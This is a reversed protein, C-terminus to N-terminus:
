EAAPGPCTRPCRFTGTWGRSTLAEAITSAVEHPETLLVFGPFRLTGLMKITHRNDRQMDQWWGSTYFHGLRGDFEAIVTGEPMDYAADVCAPGIQRQRHPKPLGHASCARAHALEIISHAGEGALELVDRLHRRRRLNPLRDLVQRLRAASTSRQQVASALVAAAQTDDIAEAACDLVAREIRFRTPHCAPHVDRQDLRRTRTVVLGPQNTVVRSDPVAIQVVPPVLSRRDALWWASRHSVVAGPGAYLVGAWIRQEADLRGTWTAYVGPHVRQWRGTHVRHTMADRSLGYAAAQAVTILGCQSRLVEDIHEVM